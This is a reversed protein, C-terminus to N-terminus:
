TSSRRGATRSSLMSIRQVFLPRISQHRAIIADLGEASVGAARELRQVYASPSDGGITRNTSFSLPTKNVISECRNAEISNRNCWAKPFIHHIDIQQDLFTAMNIPEDKVWDRGGQRMLLAYVGKYAASLRTKMTMLRGARFTAEAVTTPTGPEGRIWPVVQEVDRAM